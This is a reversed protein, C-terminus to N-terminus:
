QAVTARKVGSYTVTKKNSLYNIMAEATTTAATKGQDRHDFKYTVAMYNNMAVSYDMAPDLPKGSKGIMKVSTCQNKKDNTIIYTMGSVQLDIDKELKYAYCILSAIEDANMKFIVVQNNFPDLKYLDKLTINGEALEPLRIGGKNQFAFDVKLESTLADTMLSGLEDYGTITKETFGIVQDFEKNDNYQDILKRVEENEKKLDAVPIVEDRRDSVHGNEIQLTTKGFYRLNAGAQLIMVGNEMLPKELLTHSHGGIILDFQPMSDALRVDDEVGLHTLGVLIGYRDKLWAFERAKALGNTFKIGTMKSPHSSPLGNEDLQIIGLIALSDGNKTGLIIYPKVPHMRAESVDLNCSIFPFLAQEIRKNLFDQGMDFEHNGLASVDFGCHNMLDIMPFGKDPIMDVVPNGTFNDGAAVLFVNPHFRRLSDALYALKALNDIKAHMDNTHLIIIETPKQKAPEQTFGISFQFLLSTLVLFYRKFM